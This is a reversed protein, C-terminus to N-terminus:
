VLLSLKSKVLKELHFKFTRSYSDFETAVEWSIFKSWKGLWCIKLFMMVTVEEGEWASRHCNECKKETKVTVIGHNWQFFIYLIFINVYVIVSSLTNKGTQMRERVAICLWVSLHCSQDNM